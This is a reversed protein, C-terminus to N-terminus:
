CQGGFLTHRIDPEVTKVQKGTPKDLASHHGSKLWSKCYKLPKFSSVPPGNVGIFLLCSRVTSVCVGFVSQSM